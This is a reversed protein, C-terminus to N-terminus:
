SEGDKVFAGGAVMKGKRDKIEHWASECCEDFKLGHMSAVEKLLRCAHGYGGWSSGYGASQDDMLGAINRCLDAVVKYSHSYQRSLFRSDPQQALDNGGDLHNANVMCVAVDGIADKLGGRDGKIIADALEGLESLAKLLQATITSHEYIGRDAAWQEVNTKFQEFTMDDSGKM